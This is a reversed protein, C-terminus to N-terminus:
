LRARVQSSPDWIMECIMHQSEKVLHVEKFKFRSDAMEFVKLIENVTRIRGNTNALVIMDVRRHELVDVEADKGLTQEKRDCVLVRAGPKLAPILQRFIGVLDSDSWNVICQCIFYADAGKVPQRDRFDHAMFSIRDRLQADQAVNQKGKESAGQLDQVIFKLSPHARAVPIVVQGNSGGMDVVTGNCLNQWPYLSVIHTQPGDQSEGVWRMMTSFNKMREPFQQLYTYWPLDTNYAYCCASHNRQDSDPWKQIANAINYAGNGMDEFLCSVADSVDSDTALLRSDATHAVFGVKPEYFLHFVMAQRLLRTLLNENINCAKALDAFSISGELPVHHAVRFRHIVRLGM